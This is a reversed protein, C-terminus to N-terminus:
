IGYGGIKALSTAKEVNTTLLDFRLQLLENTACEFFHLRTKIKFLSNVIILYLVFCGILQRNRNSYICYIIAKVLEWDAISRNLFTLLSNIREEEKVRYKCM